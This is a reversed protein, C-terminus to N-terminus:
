LLVCVKTLYQWQYVVPNHVMTYQCKLQSKASPRERWYHAVAHGCDAWRVPNTTSSSSHYIRFFGPGRSAAEAAANLVCNVVLDVPIQDGVLQPNGPQVPMFGLGGTLFLAGGASVTDVWGPEPERWSCGIITPRVIAVPVRGHYKFLLKEGMAKTFTYTNPYRTLKLLEACRPGIDEVKMAGIENMVLEGDAELHPLEELVKSGSPQNCNVYATSVHVYALLHPCKDAMRLMRLPGRCNTTIAGDLRENFDVNAACHILMHVSSCVRALDADSLGMFDKNIDGALAVVKSQFYADFDDGMERRLRTFIPSKAIEKNARAQPAVKKKPRILIYITKVDRLSYLIQKHTHMHMHAYTM